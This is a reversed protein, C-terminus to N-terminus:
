CSHSPRLLLSKSKQVRFMRIGVIDTFDQILPPYIPTKGKLVSLLFPFGGELFFLTSFGRIPLTCTTGLGGEEEEEEEESRERGSDGGEHRQLERDAESM